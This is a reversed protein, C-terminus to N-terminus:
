QLNKTDERVLNLQESVILFCYVWVRETPLVAKWGLKMIPERPERPKQRVSFIDMGMEFYYNRSEWWTIWTIIHVKIVIEPTLLHRVIGNDIYKNLSSYILMLRM